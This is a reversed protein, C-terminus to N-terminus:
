IFVFKLIILGMVGPIGMLGSITVTIPNVPIMVGTLGKTLNIILMAALGCFAGIFVTKLPKGKKVAFIM